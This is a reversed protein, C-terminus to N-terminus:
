NGEKLSSPRQMKLIADVKKKKQWPKMGEPTLWYGLWDIVQVAWECKFLNITFRNAELQTLIQDFVDIHKLWDTSFVGVDNIYM